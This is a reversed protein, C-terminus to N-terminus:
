SLHTSKLSLLPKPNLFRQSYLGSVWNMRTGIAGALISDGVQVVITGDRFGDKNIYFKTM